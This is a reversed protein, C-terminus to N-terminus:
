RRTSASRPRPVRRRCLLGRRGTPRLPGCRAPARCNSRTDASPGPEEPVQWTWEASSWRNVAVRRRDVEVRYANRVVVDLASGPPLLRMGDPTDERLVAKLHVEELEKYVGRDTFVTGRLAAGSEDVRDGRHEATLSAKSGIRHSSPPTATRKPRSWSRCTPTTESACLCRPVLTVGDGDTTGQWRTVNAADVIAVRADRVPLGSDLRTVFVLTSRPSAKVSIGLNTVQLLARATTDALPDSPGLIEAAGDDDMRSGHRRALACPERRPRTEPHRRAHRQHPADPEQPPPLRAMERVVRAVAADGLVTHGARDVADSVRRQPTCPSWPDEGPKGFPEALNLFPSLVHVPPIRDM